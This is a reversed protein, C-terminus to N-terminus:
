ATSRGRPRNLLLLRPHPTVGLALPLALCLGPWPSGLQRIPDGRRRTGGFFGNGGALPHLRSSWTSSLSECGAVCRKAAEADLTTGCVKISWFPAPPSPRTIGGILVRTVVSGACVSLSVAVLFFVPSLSFPAPLPIGVTVRSSPPRAWPWPFTPSMSGM